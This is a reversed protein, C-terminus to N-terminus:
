YQEAGDSSSRSCSTACTPSGAARRGAVVVVVPQDQPVAHETWTPLIETVLIEEHQGETLVVPVVDEDRLASEM